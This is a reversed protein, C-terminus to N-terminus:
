ELIARDIMTSPTEKISVASERVGQLIIQSERDRRKYILYKEKEIEFFQRKYQATFDYWQSIQKEFRQYPPVKLADLYALIALYYCVVSREASGRLGDVYVPNGSNDTGTVSFGIKGGGVIKMLLYVWPSYSFSYRLHIFTSGEDLPTAELGFQHDKTGYPGKHAALSIDFYRSQLESVRYEFKMLYADEFPEDFKDVNYINLLWTHNVKKYTCARVNMHPLLFECWNTPVLLEDQVIDFPYKITGFIEVHSTNKSVFSEIYFPVAFSNTELEKEIKHYKDILFEHGAPLSDDGYLIECWGFSLLLSIALFLSLVRTLLMNYKRYDDICM